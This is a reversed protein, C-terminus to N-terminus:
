GAPTQIFQRQRLPRLRGTYILARMGDAGQIRQDVRETSSSRRDDGRIEVQSDRNGIRGSAGLARNAVDREEDFRVSILLRRQPTDLADLALRLDSVNAPSTRVFLQSGQGSITGGPELLPRLSPLIQEATRYRLAIIELANQARAVSALPALVAFRILTRRNM